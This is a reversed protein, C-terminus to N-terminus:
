GEPETVGRVVAAEGTGTVTRTDAGGLRLFTLPVDVTVTVHVTRDEVSISGRHGVRVLYDRAAAAAVDPDLHTRGTARLAAIDVAQAGARAANDAIDFAQRRSALVNGGDYLLGAVMLFALALGVVLISIAGDEGDLQVSRSM